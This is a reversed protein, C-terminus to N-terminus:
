IKFGLSIHSLDSSSGKVMIVNDNVSDVSGKVSSLLGIIESLHENMGDFEKSSMEAMQSIQSANKSALGINGSIDQITTSQEEVAAVIVHSIENVQNIVKVIGLVSNVSMEVSSKVENIKKSIESTAETTQRALEKVENAVVAFGKGADGASAAEIAANLALLNTQEAISDIVDIIKTIDAAAEGLVSIQRQTEKAQSDAKNSVELEKQCNQAVEMLSTSMDDVSTSLSTVTNSVEQVAVSVSKHKLGISNSTEHVKESRNQINNFNLTLEEVTTLSDSSKQDLEGSIDLVNQVQHQVKGVFDNFSVNLLSIEKFNSEPLRFSLDGDGKSLDFIAKSVKGLSGVIYMSSFLGIGFVLIAGFISTYLLLNSLSSIKEVLEEQTLNQSNKLFNAEFDSFSPLVGFLVFLVPLLAVTSLIFILVKLISFKM